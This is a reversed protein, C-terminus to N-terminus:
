AHGKLDAMNFKVLLIFSAFNRADPTQSSDFHGKFDAM